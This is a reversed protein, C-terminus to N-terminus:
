MVKFAPVTANLWARAACYASEAQKLKKTDSSTLDYAHQVLDALLRRIEAEQGAWTTILQMTRPCGPEALKIYQEYELRRVYASAAIASIGLGDAIDRFGPPHGHTGIYARIFHLTRQPGDPLARKTPSATTKQTTSLLNM